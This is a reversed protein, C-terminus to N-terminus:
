KAAVSTELVRIYDIKAVKEFNLDKLLNEDIKLSNKQSFVIELKKNQINIETIQKEYSEILSTRKIMLSVQFIYFSLFVTILIVSIVFFLRLDKKRNITQLLAQSM